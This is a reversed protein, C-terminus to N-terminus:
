YVTKVDTFFKHLQKGATPTEEWFNVGNVKVAFMLAHHHLHDAPADRLINVGAPSFLQQVYPKFPV